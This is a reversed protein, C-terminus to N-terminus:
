DKVPMAISVSMNAATSSGILRCIVTQTLGGIRISSPFTRQDVLLSNPTSNM